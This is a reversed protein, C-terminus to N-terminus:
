RGGGSLAFLLDVLGNGTGAFIELEEDKTEVIEGDGISFTEFEGAHASEKLCKLVSFYMRQIENDALLGGRQRLMRKWQDVSASFIMETSLANGLVGRAAGRAQKRGYIPDLTDAIRKYLQKSAEQHEYLSERLDDDGHDTLYEVLKPHYEWDSECEDVYRTSRQSVATSFHHRIQEHSFGRSGQMFLTVWRPEIAQIGLAKFAEPDFDPDPEGFIMPSNFEHKFYSVMRDSRVPIRQSWEDWQLVHTINVLMALNKYINLELRLNPRDILMALDLFSADEIHFGKACHTYVSVNNTELIHKHYDASSRGKGLSDYCVRGALEGLQEFVSGQMQDERPEGMMYPIHVDGGDYVLEVNM